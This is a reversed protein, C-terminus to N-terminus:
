QDGISLYSVVGTSLTGIYYSNKNERTWFIRGVCFDDATPSRKSDEDVLNGSPVLPPIDGVLPYHTRCSNM